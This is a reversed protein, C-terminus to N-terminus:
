IIKLLQLTCYKSPVVYEEKPMGNMSEIMNFAEPIEDVPCVLFTLYDKLEGNDMLKVGVTIVNHQVGEVYNCLRRTISTVSTINLRKNNKM